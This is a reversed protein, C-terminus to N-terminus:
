KLFDPVDAEPQPRPQPTIDIANDVPDQLTALNVNVVPAKAKHAENFHGEMDGIMQMAKLKDHLKYRPQGTNDIYFEKIAARLYRPLDHLNTIPTGDPHQMLAPDSFAIAAGEQRIRDATVEMSARHLATFHDIREQIAESSLLRTAMEYLEKRSLLSADSASIIASHILSEVPAGGSAILQAFDIERPRPAYKFKPQQIYSEALPSFQTPSTNDM